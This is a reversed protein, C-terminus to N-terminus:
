NPSHSHISKTRSDLLIHDGEEEQEVGVVNSDGGGGGHVSNISDNIERFSNRIKGGGDRGSWSCGDM